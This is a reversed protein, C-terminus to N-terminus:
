IKKDTQIETNGKNASKLLNQKEKNSEDAKNKTDSSIEKKEIKDTEGTDGKESKDTEDKNAESNGGEFKDTKGKNDESDVEESKDTKGKQDESDSEEFKSTEDKQGESDVEESEDTEGKKGESDVEKSEESDEEGVSKEIENGSVSPLESVQIETDVSKTLEVQKSLIKTTASPLTVNILNSKQNLVIGTGNTYYKLLDDSSTADISTLNIALDTANEDLVKFVLTQLTAGSYCNGMAYGFGNSDAKYASQRGMTISSGKESSLLELANYDYRIYWQVASSHFSAADFWIEVKKEGDKSSQENLYLNFMPSSWMEPTVQYVAKAVTNTLTYNEKMDNTLDFNAVVSYIGTDKIVYSSGADEGNVTYTCIVGKPVSIPPTITITGNVLDTLMWMNDLKITEIVAKSIVIQTEMPSPVAYGKPVEFSVYATNSGANTRKNDVYVPTVYDPLGTVLAIHEKGDYVAEVKEFKWNSTDIITLNENPKQSEDKNDPDQPKNNDSSGPKQSDNPKNTSPKGSSENSDSPNNNSVDNTQESKSTVNLELLDQDENPVKSSEKLDNNSIDLLNKKTQKHEPAGRTYGDKSIEPKKPNDKPKTPEESDTDDLNSETTELNREITLDEKQVEKQHKPQVLLILAFVIMVVVAVSVISLRKKSM